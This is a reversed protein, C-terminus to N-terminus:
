LQRAWYNFKWTSCTHNLKETIEYSHARKTVPCYPRVKHPDINGHLNCTNFNLQMRKSLFGVGAYNPLHDHIIM